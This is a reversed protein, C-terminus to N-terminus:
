IFDDDLDINVKAATPEQALNGNEPASRVREPDSEDDVVISKGIYTNRPMLVERALSSVDDASFYKELSGIFRLKDEAPMMADLNPLPKKVVVFGAVKGQAVSRFVKKEEDESPAKAAYVTTMTGGYKEEAPTTPLDLLEKLVYNQTLAM